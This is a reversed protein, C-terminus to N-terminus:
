FNFNTRIGITIRRPNLFNFSSMNPMDIYAKNKLIDQIRANEVELWTGGKFEMYKGSTREWYIVGSDGTFNSSIEGIREIPQYPTGPSRYDGPRDNGPINDYVNSEALHLSQFYFQEDHSDMFSNLNLRKTNLLNSIEVFVSIDMKKLYIQKNIRLSINFWDKYHVNSGIGPLGRPNWTDWYGSAWDGILLVQMDDFPHSGFIEPGSKKPVKFNLNFRAYPQPIPRYQYYEKTTLDYKRQESPDEYIRRTGFYGSTTVSYTYNAFGTWWKGISKRLTLELGRIDEYSDNNAANYIVSKDANIYETTAYQDTIDHYFAALQLLYTNFLSQDFGLEYSITKALSLNPNGFIDMQNSAGRSLRFIEEFTPLQKFHGYNFFLKSYVFNINFCLRNYNFIRRGIGVFGQM